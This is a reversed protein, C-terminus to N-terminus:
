IVIDQLFTCKPVKVHITELDFSFLISACTGIIDEFNAKAYVTNLWKLYQCLTYVM